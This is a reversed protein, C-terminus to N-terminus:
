QGSIPLDSIQANTKGIVTKQIPSITGKEDWEARLGDLFGKRFRADNAAWWEDSCQRHCGRSASAAPPTRLKRPAMYTGLADVVANVIARTATDGDHLADRILCISRYVSSGDRGFEQGIKAHRYGYRQYAVYMTVHRAKQRTLERGCKRLTAGNNRAALLDAATFGFHQAVATIIQEVNPRTGM